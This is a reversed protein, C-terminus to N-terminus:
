AAPQFALVNDRRETAAMPACYNAWDRMIPIRAKYMLRSRRYKEAVKGAPAKHAICFEIAHHHYKPAAETGELFQEDTWSRFSARFGHVTADVGMSEQLYKRMTGDSIWPNKTQGDRSGRMSAPFLYDVNGKGYIAELESIQERFIEVLQPSLPLLYDQQHPCVKFREHPIAWVPQEANDLDLECLRVQAFEQWRLCTLNIAYLARATPHQRARLDVMLQPIDEVPVHAHSGRTEGSKPPKGGLSHMLRKTWKAPNTAHALDHDHNFADDLVTEIRSRVESAMVPITKWIPKLVAIIDAVFIENIKKAWIPKCHNELSSRWKAQHKENKLTPLYEDMFKTAHAGFTPVKKHEPENPYIGRRANEAITNAETRLTALEGKRGEVTGLPHRKPKKQGKVRYSAFWRHEGGQSRLYLGHGFAIDDKLTALLAEIDAETRREPAKDRANVKPL